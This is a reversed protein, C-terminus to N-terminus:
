FRPRTAFLLRASPNGIEWATGSPVAQELEVLEDTLQQGSVDRRRGQLRPVQRAGAHVGAGPSIPPSDEREKKCREIIRLERTDSNTGQLSIIELFTSAM